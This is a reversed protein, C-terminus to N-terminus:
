FLRVIKHRFLKSMIVVGWWQFFTLVSNKIFLKHNKLGGGERGRESLTGFDPTKKLAERISMTSQMDTYLVYHWANTESLSPEPCEYHKWQSQLLSMNEYHFMLSLTVKRYLYHPITPSLSPNYPVTLSQLLCHPSTINWKGFM